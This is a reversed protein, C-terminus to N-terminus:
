FIIYNKRIWFNDVSKWIIITENDRFQYSLKKLEFSYFVSILNFHLKSASNHDLFLM